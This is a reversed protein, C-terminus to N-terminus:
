RRKTFVFGKGRGAGASKLDIELNALAAAVHQDVVIALGQFDYLLDNTPHVEEETLDVVGYAQDDGDRVRQM